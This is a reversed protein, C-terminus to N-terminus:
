FWDFGEPSDLWEEWDRQDQEIQEREAQSDRLAAIYEERTCPIAVIHDNVDFGAIVDNIRQGANVFTPYSKSDSGVLDGAFWYPSTVHLIAYAKRPAPLWEGSSAKRCHTDDKQLQATAANLKM